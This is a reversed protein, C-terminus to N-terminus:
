DGFAQGLQDVAAEIAAGLDTRGEHQQWDDMAVEIATFVAAATVRSGLDDPPLGRRAALIAGSIRGMELQYEWRRARLSPTRYVIRLRALLADRDEASVLALGDGVVRRVSELIPEEAPRAALSEIIGPGVDEGLAVAEKTPFYRFFTRPSVDAAAAIEDITTAEYGQREFLDLAADILAARTRERKRQRLSGPVDTRPAADETTMTPCYRTEGTGAVRCVYVFTLLRWIATVAM